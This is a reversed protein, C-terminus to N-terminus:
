ISLMFDIEFVNEHVQVETKLQRWATKKTVTMTAAITERTLKFLKSENPLVINM